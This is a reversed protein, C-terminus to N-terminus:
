PKGFSYALVEQTLRYSEDRNRGIGDLYPLDSVDADWGHNDVTGDEDIPTPPLYHHEEPNAIHFNRVPRKESYTEREHVDEGSGIGGSEGRSMNTGWCGNLSVTGVDSGYSVDGEEERRWRENTGERRKERRAQMRVFSRRRDEMWNEEDEANLLSRSTGDSGVQPFARIGAAGLIHLIPLHSRTTKMRHTYMCSLDPGLVFEGGLQSVDGGKEWVPMGVRIANRVVMALGGLPGHRVYEGRDTDYGPDQSKRTMGLAAHLRLTPDTYIAFPMRFIQKYSRIMAPSGLGVVVLDINARKLADPDVGRAISYMYDQDAPCWFHRIFIVVTKRDKFLEGFQVRLGNQAVVFLSAAHRLQERSPIAYEDFKLNPM